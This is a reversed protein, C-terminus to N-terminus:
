ALNRRISRDIEPLLSDRVFEETGIINGMINVTVGSSQPGDFNPSSLPTIDVREAGGPNDGVIIQQPGDTVFSGGRAFAPPKQAAILGSQIASSIKLGTILRAARAGAKLDGAAILPAVAAEIDFIARNLTMFVQAIQMMQQARFAMEQQASFKDKIDNEMNQREETSAKRFKDTKKLAKLEQDMNSKIVSSFAKQIESFMQMWSDQVMLHFSRTQEKLLEARENDDEVNDDKMKNIKDESEQIIEQRKKQFNEEIELKAAARLGEDILSLNGIALMEKRNLEQLKLNKNSLNKRIESMQEESGRFVDFEENKLDIITQGQAARKILNEEQLRELSVEFKERSKEIDALEKLEEKRKVILRILRMEKASLDRGLKVSLKEAESTANLTDLQKQMEVVNKAIDENLQDITKSDRVKELEALYEEVSKTTVETQEEQLEMLQKYTTVGVALSALAAAVFIYPNASIAANLAVVAPAAAYCAAALGSVGFGAAAAATAMTTFVAAIKLAIFTAIAIGLLKVAGTLMIIQEAQISNFFDTMVKVLKRFSPALEEGVRARFRFVADELNSVSQNITGELNSIGNAISGDKDTFAKIMAIQFDELSDLELNELEAFDRILKLIGKERFVDAAGQGGAFARGFASAAYPISEGMFAAVNALTPILAEADAGFAELAVGGEVVEQVTFPTTAAIDMFGAMQAKATEASGSLSKLRAEFTELQATAKVFGGITRRLGETAFAVLLLNNRVQGLSRRLGETELRLRGVHKKGKEGVQKFGVEIDKLAKKAKAADKVDIQIILKEATTGM